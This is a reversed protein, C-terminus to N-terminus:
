KFRNLSKETISGFFVKNKLWRMQHLRQALDIQNLALAVTTSADIDLILAIGANLMQPPQFTRIVNIALSYGPVALTDQHFFGIFPLNLEIIPQTPPVIYDECRIEGPQMEIRNIFRLGVRQIELPKAVENYMQWLRMAEGFLHEWDQYPQLRSFMFGDRTFRAIQKEDASQFHLGHWGMDHIVPKPQDPSLTIEHQVQRQSVSKPYDPLLPKVQQSIASEEWAVQARASIEIVAEVIPARDLHPFKEALNIELKRPDTM